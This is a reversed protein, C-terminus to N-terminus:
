KKLCNSDRFECSKPDIALGAVYKLRLFEWFSTVNQLSRPVDHSCFACRWYAQNEESWLSRKQKRSLKYTNELVENIIAAM